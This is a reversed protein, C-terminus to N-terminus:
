HIGAPTRDRESEGEAERAEGGRPAMTSAADRDRILLAVPV